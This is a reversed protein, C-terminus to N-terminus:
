VLALELKHKRKEWDPMVRDLLQFFAQSHDHYKLHCLEHTVVYDICDKPARILDTNLTLNGKKSLSGWRKKMSRIQIRPKSINLKDFYTWCREVSESFKVVARKLYWERLLKKVKEYDPSDKVTIFFYGHTLKVGDKEGDAIKLRYQRGLYMHTEGGIYQRQPTKPNFQGFYDLQKKIWRARKFVKKQVETYETGIPAKIVINGDPHVAIELTKRDVYFVNFYIIEKGYIITSSKLTM